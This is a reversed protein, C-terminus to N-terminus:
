FQFYIFANSSDDGLLAILLLLAIDIGCVLWRKNLTKESLQLAFEKKRQFWEILILAGALAFRFLVVSIGSSEMPVVVSSFLSVSIMQGFFDAAQEVNSARFIATGMSFLLFVFLMKSVDGISPLGFKGIHLKQRKNMKGSIIIPIYLLAQYVGFVAYTWNAGHWLGIIVMNILIALFIGWNGLIRFKINLPTFVYDTVWTTLSMHWRRWFEAINTTFFPYKFNPTVRVGLLKGVGIAMDSYGSFDAYMQLQYMIVALFLTSGPLVDYNEWVPTVFGALKDAILMKKMLGWLIQQFGEMALAYDFTRKKELQPIFKDPRDIPGAMITPFFSVYNAFYVINRCALMKGRNIEIVYSILKFTFYSVGLPMIINFTSWNTQLGMANFLDSFSLIFFNFYKFYLLIGIGLVVGTIKLADGKKNDKNKEIGIGLYYFFVTVALLLPIMRWEAIGYFVYSAVLLIANQISNNKKGAIWYLLFVIIFFGFFDFSNFLM